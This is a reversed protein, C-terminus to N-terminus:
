TNQCLMYKGERLFASAHIKGSEKEKFYRSQRYLQRPHGVPHEAEAGERNTM